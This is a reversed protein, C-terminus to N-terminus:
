IAGPSSPSPPPSSGPASRSSRVAADGVIISDPRDQLIGVDDTEANFIGTSSRETDLRGVGVYQRGTYISDGTAVSLSEPAIAVADENVTGLDFVLKIGASDASHVDSQYVWFELYETKSLDLGTTSLATVMSRWRPRNPREPLTWHSRNANDVIGGATDAHLTMWLPTEFQTGTGAFQFTTDIDQPRIEVARGDPGAVLNQWTLQVADASDFALGFINEVGDTRQPKSGFEWNQERLSVQASVDSEFEELYAAGSRNPDPKSFAVEANV